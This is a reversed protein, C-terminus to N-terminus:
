TNLHENRTATSTAETSGDSEASSEIERLQKALYRNLDQLDSVMVKERRTGWVTEVHFRWRNQERWCRVLYASHPELRNM